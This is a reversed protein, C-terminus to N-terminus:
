EVEQKNFWAWETEGCSGCHYSNVGMGCWSTGSKWKFDKGCDVCLYPDEEEVKKTIGANPYSIVERGNVYKPLLVGNYEKYEVEKKKINFKIKKKKAYEEKVMKVVEKGSKGSIDHQEGGISYSITPM